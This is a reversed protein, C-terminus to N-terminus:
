YYITISTIFLYEYFFRISDFRSSGSHLAINCTVLEM